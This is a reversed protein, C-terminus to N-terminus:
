INNEYEICDRLISRFNEINCERNVLPKEWDYNKIIRITFHGKINLEPYWGIDLTFNNGLNDILTAQLLDENLEFIQKKLSIKDDIKFTNYVVKWKGFNIGDLM